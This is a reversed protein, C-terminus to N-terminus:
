VAVADEFKVLLRRNDQTCSTEKVMYTAPRHACLGTIFGRTIEAGIPLPPQPNTEVAWKWEAELQLSDVHSGMCDLEDLDKMTFDWGCNRTLERALEYGDMGIRYHDAITQADCDGGLAEAVKQAAQLKMENTVTPRNM